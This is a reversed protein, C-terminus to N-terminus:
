AGRLARAMDVVFRSPGQSIWWGNATHYGPGVILYATEEARTLAVYFARRQEAEEHANPSRWNGRDNIDRPVLGNLLGPLIVTAFQRGKASHYTTLMAKGIVTVRSALDQLSLSQGVCTDRLRALVGANEADPHEAVIDSLELENDLRELWELPSEDPMYPEVPDLARQLARLLVLRHSGGDLGSERRLRAISGALQDLTPTDSRALVDSVEDTGALIRLQSSLVARSACRQVLNSVAGSPLLTDREHIYPVDSQDLATLLSTLLPGRAPYLVAIRELPIGHAQERDILDLTALAHDDLAGEVKHLEVDGPPLEPAARRGRRSGLAAESAVIIDQGSRYNIELEVPLFDDRLELEHLLAPEAGTFGFVSQDADGVACIIIDAEDRLALVLDHLVGGLDQYEDVCIHPFKARLHDRVASHSRVTRLARSVMAEFDILGRDVLMRDFMRAAEVERPDFSGLSGGRAITRRIKTVPGDRWQAATESIGIRDFCEQLLAVSLAGDLVNGAMPIWEGTVAAFPRLIENLCFSHLTSCALRGDTSVQLSSVRRHLESAAANTYTICAMGRFRPIRTDLLYAVRAVLTRTKGSGPGARVVVNGPHLVAMRQGADLDQLERLLSPHITAV